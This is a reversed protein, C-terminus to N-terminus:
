VRLGVELRTGAEIDEIVDRLTGPLDLERDGALGFIVDRIEDMAFRALAQAAL